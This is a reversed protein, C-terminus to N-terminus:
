YAGVSARTAVNMTGLVGCDGMNLTLAALASAPAIAGSGILANVVQHLLANLDNKAAQAHTPNVTSAALTIKALVQQAFAYAPNSVPIAQLAQTVTQTTM